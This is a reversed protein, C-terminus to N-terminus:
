ASPDIIVLRSRAMTGSEKFTGEPLQESVGGIANLWSRFDQAAKDNRFFASEGMIAVLIGDANLHEYAKRVHAIDQLNEFPPNMVVADFGIPSDWDMFDACEVLLGAMEKCRDANQEVCYVAGGARQLEYAIRGLGASPELCKDGAKIKALQVMRKALEVPTEFFGDRITTVTLAGNDILGEVSPRPDTAFLHAKASKNWKGGMAELAKNVAEYSKRDLQGTIKASKGDDAWSMGRITEIVAEDFKLTKTRTLTM